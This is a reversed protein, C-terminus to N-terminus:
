GPVGLSGSCSIVCTEGGGSLVMALLPCALGQSSLFRSLPAM